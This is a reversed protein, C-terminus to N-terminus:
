PLRFVVAVALGAGSMLAGVIVSALIIRNAAHYAKWNGRRLARLEIPRVALVVLAVCAWGALIFGRALAEPPIPVTL